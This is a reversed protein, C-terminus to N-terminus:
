RAGVHRYAPGATSVIFPEQQGWRRMFDAGLRKELLYM